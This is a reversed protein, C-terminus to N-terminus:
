IMCVRKEERLRLGEKGKGSAQRILTWLCLVFRTGNIGRGAIVRRLWLFHVSCGELEFSSKRAIM